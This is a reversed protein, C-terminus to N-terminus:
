VVSRRIRPLLRSRREARLAAVRRQFAESQLYEEVESLKYMQRGGLSRGPVNWRWLTVTGLGLQKALQRRTLYREPPHFDSPTAPSSEGLLVALARAMRDPPANIAAQILEERLTM